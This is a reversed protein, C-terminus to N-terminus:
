TTAHSAEPKRWTLMIRFPFRQRVRAGALGAQRALEALEAPRFANRVSSPGDVRFVHSRSVIRTTMWTLALALRSRSLDSVVLGRRSVRAAERLIEVVDSESFHHLFLSCTIVDISNDALPIRHADAAVLRVAGDYWARVQGLAFVSLDIGLLLRADVPGSRKSIYHLFGGGGAGIDLVSTHNAPALRGVAAYLRRDVRLLRNIRNLSRLAHAHAHADLSPDDMLEPTRRRIM